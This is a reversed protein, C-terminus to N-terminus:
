LIQSGAPDPAPSRLIELYICAVTIDCKRKGLLEEVLLSIKYHESLM